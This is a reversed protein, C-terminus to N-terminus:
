ATASATAGAQDAARAPPKARVAVAVFALAWLVCAIGGARGASGVLDPYAFSVVGFWAAAAAPPVSAARAGPATGALAMVVTSAALALAFSAQMPLHDLGWTVEDSEGSAVLRLIHWAYGAGFVVSAAALALLWRNARRWTLARFPAARYGTGLWAVAATLGLLAAPVAQAPAVVAPLLVAGAVAMVQLAFPYRRPGIAFAALPAAVLFTFLAGWGTELLFFERFREDQLPVVLLDIVGFFLVGWFGAALLVVPRTLASLM